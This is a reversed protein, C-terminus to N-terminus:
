ASRLPYGLDSQRARTNLIYAPIAQGSESNKVHVALSSDFKPAPPHM